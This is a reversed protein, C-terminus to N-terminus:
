FQLPPYYQSAKNINEFTSHMHIFRFQTSQKRFLKMGHKFFLPTRWNKGCLLVWTSGSRRWGEWWPQTQLLSLSSTSWPPTCWTKMVPTRRFIIRSAEQLYSTTAGKGWVRPYLRSISVLGTLSVEDHWDGLLQDCLHHGLHPDSHVRHLRGQCAKGWESDNQQLAGETCCGLIFNGFSHLRLFLSFLSTTFPKSM